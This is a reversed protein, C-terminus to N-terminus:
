QKKLKCAQVKLIAFILSLLGKCCNTSFELKETLVLLSYIVDYVM